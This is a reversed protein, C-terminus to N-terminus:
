SAIHLSLMGSGCIGSDKLYQHMFKTTKRKIHFKISKIRFGIYSYVMDSLFFCTLCFCNKRLMASLRDEGSSIRSREYPSHQLRFGDIVTRILRLAISQKTLANETGDLVEFTIAALVFSYAVFADDAIAATDFYGSFFTTTFPIPWM